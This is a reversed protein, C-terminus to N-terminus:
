VDKRLHSPLNGGFVGSREMDFYSSFAQIMTRSRSNDLNLWSCISVYILGAVLASFRDRSAYVSTSSNCRKSKGLRNNLHLGSKAWCEAIARKSSESAIYACQM